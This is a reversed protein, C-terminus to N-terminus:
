FFTFLCMLATIIGASAAATLICDLVRNLVDKASAANPYIARKRPRYPIVKYNATYKNATKM